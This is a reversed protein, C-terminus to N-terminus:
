IHPQFSSLFSDFSVTHIDEDFISYCQRTSSNAPLGLRIQLPSQPRPEARVSIVPDIVTNTSSAQSRQPQKQPQTQM